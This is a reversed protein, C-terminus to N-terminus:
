LDVEAQFIKKIADGKRDKKPWEPDVWLM